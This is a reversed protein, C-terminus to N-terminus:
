FTYIIPININSLIECLFIHRFQINVFPEDLSFWSEWWCDSLYFLTDLASLKLQAFVQLGSPACWMPVWYKWWQVKDRVHMSQHGHVEFIIWRNRFIWLVQKEWLMFYLYRKHVKCFITTEWSKLLKYKIRSTRLLAGCCWWWLLLFNYSWDAYYRFLFGM